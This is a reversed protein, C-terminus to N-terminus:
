NHYLQLFRNASPMGEYHKHGPSEFVGGLIVAGECAIATGQDTKNFRLGIVPSSYFPDDTSPHTQGPHYGAYRTSGRVPTHPSRDRPSLHTDVLFPFPLAAVNVCAKSRIRRSRRLNNCRQKTPTMEIHPFRQFTPLANSYGALIPPRNLYRNVSLPCSGMGM